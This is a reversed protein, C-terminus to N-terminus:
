QAASWAFQDSWLVQGYYTPWPLELLPAAIEAPTQDLGPL